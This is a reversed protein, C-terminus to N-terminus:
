KRYIMPIFRIGFKTQESDTEVFGLHQYVEQAYPSSNVTIENSTSNALVIDLLKRGIGQRHYAGDVFFLAIHNGNNRTAIVGVIKGEVYAGYIDLSSMFNNNYLATDHFTKIGEESYDPSEYRMFVDHILEIALNRDNLSVKKIELREYKM